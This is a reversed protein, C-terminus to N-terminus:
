LKIEEEAINLMNSSANINHPRQMQKTNDMDRTQEKDM